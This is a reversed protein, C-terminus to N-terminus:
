AVNAMKNEVRKNPWKTGKQQRTDNLDLISKRRAKTYNQNINVLQQVIQVHIEKQCLVPFSLRWTEESPTLETVSVNELNSM